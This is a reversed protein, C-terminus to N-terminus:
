IRSAMDSQSESKTLPRGNKETQLSPEERVPQKNGAVKQEKEIEENFLTVRAEM